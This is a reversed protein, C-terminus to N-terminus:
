KLPNRRDPPPPLKGASPTHSLLLGAKRDGLVLVQDEEQFEGRLMALALMQMLEKQLARKIPRAGFQPDFGKDAPYADQSGTVVCDPNLERILVRHAVDM